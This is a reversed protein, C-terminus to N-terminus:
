IKQISAAFDRARSPLHGPKDTSENSLLATLVLIEHQRM